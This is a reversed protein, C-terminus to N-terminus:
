KYPNIPKEYYIKDLKDHYLIYGIDEKKEISDKIKKIVEFTNVLNHVNFNDVLEIYKGARDKDYMKKMIKRWLEKIELTHAAVPELESLDMNKLFKLKRKLTDQYTPLRFEEFIMDDQNSKFSEFSLLREM